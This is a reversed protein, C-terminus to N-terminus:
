WKESVDLCDLVTSGTSPTCGEYNCTLNKASHEVCSAYAGKRDSNSCCEYMVGAMLLCTVCIMGTVLMSTKHWSM